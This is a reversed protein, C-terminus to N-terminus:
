LCMNPLRCQGVGSGRLRKRQRECFMWVTKVSFANDSPM